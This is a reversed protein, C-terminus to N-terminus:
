GGALFEVSRGRRGRGATQRDSVLVTGAPAAQNARELLLANTSTCSDLADVDFRSAMPGLAQRLLSLDILPM